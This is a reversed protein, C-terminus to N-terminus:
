GANQKRILKNLGWVDRARLSGFQIGAHGGSIWRVASKVETDQELGPIRFRLMVESGFILSADTRARLGGISLDVCVAEIDGDDTIITVPLEVQYRPYIRKRKESL